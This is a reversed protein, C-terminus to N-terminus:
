IKISAAKTFNLYKGFTSSICKIYGIIYRKYELLRLM